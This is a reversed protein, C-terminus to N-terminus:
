EAHTSIEHHREVASIYETQGDLAKKAGAIKADDARTLQERQIENVIAMGESILGESIYRRAVECRDVEDSNADLRSINQTADVSETAWKFEDSAELEKRQKAEAKQKAHQADWENVRAQWAAIHREKRARAGIEPGIPEAKVEELRVLYPNTVTKPKAAEIQRDIERQADDQKTRYAQREAGSKPTGDARFFEPFNPAIQQTHTNAAESAKRRNLGQPDKQWSFKRADLTTFYGGDEVTHQTIM